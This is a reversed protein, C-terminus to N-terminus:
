SFIFSEDELPWPRGTRLHSHSTFPLCGVGVPSYPNPVPVLGAIAPISQLVMKVVPITEPGLGAEM